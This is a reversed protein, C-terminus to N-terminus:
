SSKGRVPPQLTLKQNGAFNVAQETGSRDVNRIEREISPQILKKYADQGAMELIATISKNDLITKKIHLWNYRTGFGLSVSLIRRRGM